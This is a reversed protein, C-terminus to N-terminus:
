GNRCGTEMVRLAAMQGGRKVNTAMSPYKGQANRWSGKSTARRTAQRGNHLEISDAVGPPCEASTLLAGGTDSAVAAVTDAREGFKFKEPSFKLNLVYM